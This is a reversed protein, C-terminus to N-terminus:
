RKKSINWCNSNIGKLANNPMQKKKKPWYINQIIFLHDKAGAAPPKLTISKWSLYGSIM